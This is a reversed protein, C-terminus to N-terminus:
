NNEIETTISGSAKDISLVMSIEQLPMVEKFNLVVKYKGQRVDAENNVTLDKYSSAHQDGNWSYETIAEQTVLNDLIPKAELYIRNWTSFTNPEELYSDLIPRLRKKMFLVLRVVSLYRFSDQKVQSTFCHWLMTRKGLSRTDKVVIMNVYNLALDNLDEYRSPSGYNPSVSGHADEIIGRNMGAFSRWPGHNSASSDGIGMITGIVDSNVVIGSENYYLIGGGFYSVWMSNGITNICTNVWNIIGDKDMVETGESYHTKYKPVEIYYTYEQVRDCMEKFAQHVKLIDPNNSLHQNIHSCSVQYVDSYNLLSDMSDIWADSTPATGSNGPISYCTVPNSEISSWPTDAITITIPSKSNDLSEVMWKIVGDINSGEDFTSELIIPDLYDSNRLFSNFITYDVINNNHSGASKYTLVPGSEVVTTKGNGTISYSLTNSKKTFVVDFSKVGDILDDGTKTYFGISVSKTGQAIKIISSPKDTAKVTTTNFEENTKDWTYYKGTSKDIFIKGSTKYNSYDKTSVVADEYPISEFNTYAVLNASPVNGSWPGCYLFKGKVEDFVVHYDDQPVTVLTDENLSWGSESDINFTMSYVPFINQVENTIIGKSYGTGPVRIIRLKSGELLAKEINSPSGDPVIEGGFLSKFQALSSIIVSPDNYPGKKTRALLCSIGNSPISQEVNNNEIVFNVLPSKPM